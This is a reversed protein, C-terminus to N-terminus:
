YTHYTYFGDLIKLLRDDPSRPDTGRKKFIPVRMMRSHREEDFRERRLALADSSDARLDGVGYCLVQGVLVWKEEKTSGTIKPDEIIFNVPQPKSFEFEAERLEKEAKKLKEELEAVDVRMNQVRLLVVVLTALSTVLLGQTIVPTGPLIYFGWLMLLGYICFVWTLINGLLRPNQVTLRDNDSYKMLYEECGELLQMYFVSIPRVLTAGM